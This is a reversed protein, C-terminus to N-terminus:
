EELVLRVSKEMCGIRQSKADGLGSTIEPMKKVISEIGIQLAPNNEIAQISMNCTCAPSTKVVSKSLCRTVAAGEVCMEIWRINKGEGICLLSIWYGPHAIAKESM